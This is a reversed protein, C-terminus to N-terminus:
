GSKLLGCGVKDRCVEGGGVWDVMPDNGDESTLVRVPTSYPGAAVTVAAVVCSYNYFPHLSEVRHSLGNSTLQFERGTNEETVNIMYNQIIGNHNVTPLASWSLLFGTASVASIQINDPSSSPALYFILLLLHLM